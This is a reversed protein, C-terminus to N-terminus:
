VSKYEVQKRCIKTMEVYALGRTEFMEAVGDVDSNKTVLWSSNIKYRSSINAWRGLEWIRSSGRTPQIRSNLGIWYIQRRQPRTLGWTLEYTIKKPYLPVPTPRRLTSRNGRGIRMGGVAAYELRYITEISAADNFLLSVSLTARHVM